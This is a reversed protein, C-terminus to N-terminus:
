GGEADLRRLLHARLERDLDTGRAQMREAIARRHAAAKDGGVKFRTRVEDVALRLGRIGGLMRGFPTPGAEVRHIAGDPQVRTLLRELIAALETPEDVIEVPGAVQVAAFYVTPAAWAPDAGPRANWASPVFAADTAVSFLARDARQGPAGALAAWVPNRADLHLELTGKGEGARYVYASPIAFPAGGPAAVVLQGFAHDRLFAQWEADSQAADVPDHFM